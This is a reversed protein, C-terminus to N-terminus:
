GRATRPSLRDAFSAPVERRVKALAERSLAEGVVAYVSALVARAQEFTMGPGLLQDPEEPTTVIPLQDLVLQRAQPSLYGALVSLVTRTANRVPAPDVDGVREIVKSVLMEETIQM